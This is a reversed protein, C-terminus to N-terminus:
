RRSKTLNTTSSESARRHGHNEAHMKKKFDENQLTQRLLSKNEDTKQESQRIIEPHM